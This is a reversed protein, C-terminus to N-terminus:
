LTQCVSVGLIDQNDVTMKRQIANVRISLFRSFRSFRGARLALEPLVM